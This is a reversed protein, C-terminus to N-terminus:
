DGRGRLFERHGLENPKMPFFPSCRTMDTPFGCWHALSTQEPEQSVTTVEQRIEEAQTAAEQTVSRKSRWNILWASAVPSGKKIAELLQPMNKALEKQGEPMLAIDRNKTM